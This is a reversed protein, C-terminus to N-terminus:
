IAQTVAEPGLDTEVAVTGGYDDVICYLAPVLFLVQFTSAALGFALSTVLPVLVQAQLSTEMLLPSVGAVTTLTTLLVARFRQRAAGRAAAESSEGGARRIKIFNMLVIANNVVVGALSVFGVLSPMSLELGMALHGAVVGVLGVPISAMIVLPEIYGRFQFSLLLFIAALGVLFNRGLSAGTEASESAQGELETRIGPYRALLGPMFRAQTDAVIEAANAKEPDIDGQITVARRGDVRHIRSYGRESTLSAVTHLPVQEGAPLTVTFRALDALS